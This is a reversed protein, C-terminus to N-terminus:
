CSSLIKYFRIWHSNMFPLHSSTIGNRVTTFLIEWENKTMEWDNRTLDDFIILLAYWLIMQQQGNVAFIIQELKHVRFTSENMQVYFYWEINNMNTNLSFSHTASNMVTSKWKTSIINNM